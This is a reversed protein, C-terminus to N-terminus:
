ATGVHSLDTLNVARALVSASASGANVYANLTLGSQSMRFDIYGETLQRLVSLLDVGIALSIDSTVPWAVGASDATATFGLTVGTLAGRAQAETVLLQLIRGATLGPPKPDSGPGGYLPYPLIVWGASTNVPVGSVSDVTVGEQGGTTNLTFVSVRLGAKLDNANHVRVALLHTGARLTLPGAKAAQGLYVPGGHLLPAGDLWLDYADDAAAWVEVDVQAAVNFLRRFYVDGGPANVSVLNRDWIWVAGPDCWGEPRGGLGTAVAATWGTTNLDLSAFNFVRNDSFAAVIGATSPQDVVAEEMIAATGRGALTTVEGVEEDQSISVRTKQEVLSSFRTTGDIAFNLVAGYPVLALAPDDNQLTLSGSGTDNLTDQWGRGHSDPLTTLLTGARSRAEATIDSM